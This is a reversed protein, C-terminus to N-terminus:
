NEDHLTADLVTLFAEVLPDFVLARQLNQIWSDTQKSITLIGLLVKMLTSNVPLYFSEAEQLFRLNDLSHLPFWQESQCLLGM